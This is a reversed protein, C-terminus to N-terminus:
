VCVCACVCVCWGGGFVWHKYDLNSGGGTGVGRWWYCGLVCVRVYGGGALLRKERDMGELAATHTYIHTNPVGGRERGGERQSDGGTGAARAAQQM